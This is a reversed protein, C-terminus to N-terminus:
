FLQWSTNILHALYAVSALASGTSIILGLGAAFGSFIAFPSGGTHAHQERHSGSPYAYHRGLASAHQSLATAM